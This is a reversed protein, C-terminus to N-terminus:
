RGRLDRWLSLAAGLALGPLAAYLAFAAAGMECGGSSGAGCAGALHGVALVGFFAVAPLVVLGVLGFGVARLLVVM